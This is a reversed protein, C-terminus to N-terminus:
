LETLNRSKRARGVGATRVRTATEPWFDHAEVQDVDFPPEVPFSSVDLGTEVAADRRAVAYAKAFREARRPKLGPNDDLLLELNGRERGITRVWSSSAREPQKLFKLLHMVILRYSSTLAALQSKGLSEIEEAVNGLDVLDLRGDRLYAVQQQTWGFFDSEYLHDIDASRTM